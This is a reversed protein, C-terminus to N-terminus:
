SKTKKAEALFPPLGTGERVMEDEWQCHITPTSMMASNGLPHLHFLARLVIKQEPQSKFVM